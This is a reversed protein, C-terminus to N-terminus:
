QKEEKIWKELKETCEKCLDFRLPYLPYNALDFHMFPVPKAFLSFLTKKSKPLAIKCRDCFTVNSM